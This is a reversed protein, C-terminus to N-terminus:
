NDEYQYISNTATYDVRRDEIYKVQCEQHLVIFLMHWWYVQNQRFIM